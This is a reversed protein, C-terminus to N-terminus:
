EKDKPESFGLAQDVLKAGMGASFGRPQFRKKAAKLEAELETYRAMLAAKKEAGLEQWHVDDEAGTLAYLLNLSVKFGARKVKCFSEWAGLRRVDETTRIGVQRLQAASKPGINRIKNDEAPKNSKIIARTV